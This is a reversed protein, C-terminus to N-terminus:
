RDQHLPPVSRTQFLQIRLPLLCSRLRQLNILKWIPHGEPHGKKLFQRGATRETYVIHM